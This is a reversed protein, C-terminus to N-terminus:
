DSQSQNVQLELSSLLGHGLKGVSEALKEFAAMDSRRIFKRRESLIAQTELEAHEGLGIIVRHIYGATRHRTGEAINSPVSVAAKRMQFTLGFREEAPFKDTIDYVLDALDMAQQWVVLDRFSIIKNSMGGSSARPM